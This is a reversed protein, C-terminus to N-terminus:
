GIKVCITMFTLDEGCPTFEYIIPENSRKAIEILGLGAGKSGENEDKQRIKEKYFKRLGQKDLSNLYDIRGKVLEVNETKMMNGSQAFYVKQKSALVFVGKSVGPHGEIDMKEVSYMLMNNMLEVFVSFVSQSASLSLEEFEMQRRLTSGLGEIGGAWLAGTYIIEVNNKKTMNYYELMNGIM